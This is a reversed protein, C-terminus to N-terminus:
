APPARAGSAAPTSSHAGGTARSLHPDVSMAPATGPPPPMAADNARWGTRRESTAPTVVPGAKRIVDAQVMAGGAVPVGSAPPPAPRGAGADRAGTAFLVAPAAVVVMFVIARRM